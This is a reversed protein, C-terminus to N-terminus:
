DSNFYVDKLYSGYIINEHIDKYKIKQMYLESTEWIKVKQKLVNM